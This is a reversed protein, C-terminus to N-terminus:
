RRLASDRTARRADESVLEVQARARVLAEVPTTRLDRALGVRAFCWVLWKTPDFNWWRPGNRYDLQFRHHFNHYGEGFTFLAMWGSDRASTELSYPRSGFRHAFSNVAFTTHWQVVLRAFGAVLVAGIPDHWLLGILGPVVLGVLIALLVYHRDQWRLLPDASLDKVRGIDISDVDKHFIWGMHAWWFGRHINYPDEDRDTKAHHLRHDAAWKLASNQVAAAGFVLYAARVAAAARYTPHAFLRHYGGSVAFGCLLLWLCGLGITWPSCHAFALYAIAALGMLHVTALVSVNRWDLPTSVFEPSPLMTM